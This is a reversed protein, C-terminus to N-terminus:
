WQITYNTSFTDSKCTDLIAMIDLARDCAAQTM